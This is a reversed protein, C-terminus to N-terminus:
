FLIVKTQKAAMTEIVERRFVTRKSVLEMIQDADDLDRVLEVVGMSTIAQTDHSRYFFVIDGAMISGDRAHCLYAQKIANGVAAHFLTQQDQAEPFLM